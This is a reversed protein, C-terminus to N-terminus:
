SNMFRRIIVHLPRLQINIGACHLGMLSLGRKFTCDQKSDDRDCRKYSARKLHIKRLVFYKQCNWGSSRSSSPIKPRLLDQLCGERLHRTMGVQRDRRSTLSTEATGTTGQFFVVVVGPFIGGGGGPFFVGGPSFVGWGGGRSSQPVVPSLVGATWGHVRSM